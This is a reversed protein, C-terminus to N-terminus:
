RSVELAMALLRDRAAAFDERSMGGRNQLQMTFGSSDGLGRVAGPVLAFVQADRLGSFAKREREAIADATNEAGERNDWHTLNVFGQGTNQGVQAAGLRVGRNRLREGGRGGPPVARCM